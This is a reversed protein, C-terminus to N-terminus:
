PKKLTTKKYDKYDNARQINPRTNLDLKKLESIDYDFQSNLWKIYHKLEVTEFLLDDEKLLDFIVRLDTRSNQSIKKNEFYKEFIEFANYKFINNHLEKKVEDPKKIDAQQTLNLIYKINLLITKLRDVFHFLWIEKFISIDKPSFSNIKYRKYVSNENLDSTYYYDFVDEKSYKTLDVNNGCNSEISTALNNVIIKITKENANILDSQLGFCNVDLFQELEIIDEFRTIKKFDTKDLIIKNSRTSLYHLTEILEIEM